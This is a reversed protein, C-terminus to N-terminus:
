FVGKCQGKLSTTASTVVAPLIEKGAVVWPVAEAATSLFTSRLWLSRVISSCFPCVLGRAMQHNLSKTAYYRAGAALAAEAAKGKEHTAAGDGMLGGVLKDTFIDACYPRNDSQQPEKAEQAPKPQSNGGIRPGNNISGANYNLLSVQTGQDMLEAIAEEAEAQTIHNPDGTVTASTDPVFTGDPNVGVEACGEGDGNDVTYTDDSGPNSGGTVCSLGLPDILDMPNNLVYAYRNFSQPNSIDGGVPDPSIWRGHTYNYERFMADYLDTTTDQHMWAFLRYAAGSEAYPEGFPAYAADSYMARSPTSAFVSSGLWNSHQYYSLGSSTYVATAGGSLPVFAKSLTQGNLLAFKDGEPGYVIQTYVSNRNQEVMRGLADYTLTVSTAGAPADTKMYGESDWTYASTGVGTGTSLLNGNADYTFTQTGLTTIRNTSANYSPQFNITGSKKLNGFAGNTDDYTFTQSWASSCNASAIRVMDEYGYTCTQTNPSNFGDTIQLTRLSGNANWTLNGTVTTGNVTYVYQTMRGTSADYTLTDGDGSGSGISVGTPGGFLSNYTTDTVPNQGSSASVTDVRGEGEPAYTITPILATSGDNKYLNLTNVLGNAWYTAKTRYYGGSNPTKQYVDVVMGTPGYSFGLDTIKSGSTGTYAEALRGKANLMNQGNVTSNDYVFHKEPTVSAYSGSPYTLQTLRHMADYAYCTVNGLADTRKVLDGNSTGCTANTNYVNTTTGSEPDAATLVRGLSDYTYSRTQTTAGQANQIASLLRDAADYTYTTWYGTQTSSQACSGAGSASTVECVSTLRGLADYEYQRRKTNEGTPAPSVTVLVDNKTYTYSATGGGADTIVLPRNLADYTTTTAGITDNEQGATGSYPITVRSPRGVADYDMQVSDYNASSAGQKRQSLHGRGWEDLTSRVDVTSGTGFDMDSESGFPGTFYSVNTTSPFADAVATARWYDPDNYTVTTPQNNEDTASTIVGGTCSWVMSRALSTIPPTVTTLLSDACGTSSYGYNTIQGNVDTMSKVNGTDYYTFSRTLGGSTRSTLNGRSGTVSVHQPASTTTVGGADYAFTTQTVTGGTSNHLTISSPRDVIGNSLSRNYSILTERVFTPGYNYEKVLTPLGYPDYYEDRKSASLGPITTLVTRRDVPLTIATSQCPFTSGDYCTEVTAMLTSGELGDYVQSKTEYIGQFRFVTEKSEPNRVVTKWDTGSQLTRTYTWTGGPDLERSLIAGGGDTCSIGNVGTGGGSYSYTIQGGTPLTISAIRGTVRGQTDGPTAEYTIDYHTNDPLTVSTVLDVDTPGYNIYNAGCGFNTKVSKTTYTMQASTSGQPGTYTLVRPSSQTGNGSVTLATTGLTDTFTTTSSVSATIKNGNRDTYSGSGSPSQLPALVSLGSRSKITASPGANASITYGSGDSSTASASYAPGHSCGNASANSVVFYYPHRAGFSDHFAWGGYVTFYHTSGNEFCSGTGSYYSIYGTEVETIGRWGWTLVPTWIQNSGSTVPYWVSNDYSLTYAFPLQRGAKNMIPISIHVNLNANNIIDPGGSFSGFPPTGTAVQASAAAVAAVLALVLLVVIRLQRRIM